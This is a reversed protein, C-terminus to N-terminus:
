AAAVLALGLFTLLGLAWGAVAGAVVYGGWSRVRRSACAIAGIALPTGMVICFDAESVSATGPRVEVMGLVLAGGLTWALVVGVLAGAM